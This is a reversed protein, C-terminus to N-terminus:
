LIKRIRNTIVNEFNEDTNIYIHQHKLLFKKM